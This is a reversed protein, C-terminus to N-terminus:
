ARRAPLSLPHPPDDDGVSPMGATRGRPTGHRFLLLDDHPVVRHTARVVGAATEILGLAEWAELTMPRLAARAAECKVEVGLLLLRTLLELPAEGGVRRVLVPM